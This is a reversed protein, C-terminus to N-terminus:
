KNKLFLDKVELWSSILFQALTNDLLYVCPCLIQMQILVSIQQWDFESEENKKISSCHM